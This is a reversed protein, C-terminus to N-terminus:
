EDKQLVFEVYNTGDGTVKYAKGSYDVITGIRLTYHTEYELKDFLLVFTKPNIYLVSLPVNSINMGEYNYEITYNNPLLNTQKFSLEKDFVLKVANTSIPKVEEISPSTKEVDSANFRKRLTAGAKNGLYDKIDLSVKLEYERKEELDDEDFFLTVKYPHINTDYMVGKPYVTATGNRLSIPYYSINGATAPDLMNTFYVDITQKDKVTIDVIDL